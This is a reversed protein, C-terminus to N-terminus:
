KHSKLTVGGVICTLTILLVSCFEYFKLDNVERTLGSILTAVALFVGVINEGQVCFM